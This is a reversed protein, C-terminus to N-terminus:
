DAYAWSPFTSNESQTKISRMGYLSRATRRVVPTRETPLFLGMPHDLLGSLGENGGCSEKWSNEVKEFGWSYREEIKARKVEVILGDFTMPSLKLWDDAQPPLLEVPDTVSVPAVDV